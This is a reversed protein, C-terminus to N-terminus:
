PRASRGAAARAQSRAAYLDLDAQAALGPADAADDPCVAVGIAVAATHTGGVGGPPEGGLAAELRERLLGAGPRDAGPAIVWYRGPRERTLTLGRWDGLRAQLLRELAPKRDEAPEAVAQELLELLMVAFPRRDREFEELQSGIAGIWAAPGPRRVDRAAIWGPGREEEGGSGGQRAGAEAPEHASPDGGGDARPDPGAGREDVIVVRAATAGAAATSRPREEAPDAEPPGFRELEAALLEACAGALRDGLELLRRAARPESRARPSCEIAAEWLVTRLAEVARALEAASGAGALAAVTAEHAGMDADRAAADLLEEILTPGDRAITALDVGAIEEPGANEILAIAWRKALEGAQAALEALAPERAAGGSRGARRGRDAM